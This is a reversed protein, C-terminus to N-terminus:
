RGDQAPRQVHELEDVVGMPPQERAPVDDTFRHALREGVDLVLAEELPEVLHVAGADPVHRVAHARPQAIRGVRGLPLHHQIEDEGGHEVCGPADGADEAFALVDGAGFRRLLGHSLRLGPQLLAFALQARQGVVRRVDDGAEIRLQAMYEDVGRHFPHGAHRECCNRPRVFSSSPMGGASHSCHFRANRRTNSSPAGSLMCNSTSCSPLLPVVRRAQHRLRRRIPRHAVHQADRAVDGVQPLRLLRQPAGVPLLVIEQCRQRVFQAIRQRGQAGSKCTRCRPVPVGSSCRTRLIM